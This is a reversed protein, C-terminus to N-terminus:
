GNSMRTGYVKNYLEAVEPLGVGNQRLSARIQPRRMLNAIRPLSIKNPMAIREALFFSQAANIAGRTAGFYGSTAEDIGYYSRGWYVTSVYEDLVSVRTNRAWHGVAWLSQKFKYLSGSTRVPRRRRINYLQQTVTSGGQKACGRCNFTLARAVAIPDLGPHLAFRKDEVLLLLTVFHDPMGLASSYERSARTVFPYSIWDSFLSIKETANPRSGPPSQSYSTTGIPLPRAGIVISGAMRSSGSYLVFEPLRVPWPPQGTRERSNCSRPHGM